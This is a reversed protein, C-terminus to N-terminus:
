RCAGFSQTYGKPLTYKFELYRAISDISWEKPPPAAKVYKALSDVNDIIVWSQGHAVLFPLIFLLFIIKKKMFCYIERETM